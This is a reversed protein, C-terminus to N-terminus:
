RLSPAEPVASAAAAGAVLDFGVAAAASGLTAGSTVVDDVLLVPGDVARRLRFPHAQRRHDGGARRASHIPPALAAQVETGLSRALATALLRAPDVGYRLHRSVARPVPVLPVAPLRPAIIAAAAEAFGTLGRYKLHHVLARAPGSHEFAAVVRVGGPMIRDPAPRM